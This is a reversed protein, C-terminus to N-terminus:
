EFRVPVFGTPKLWVWNRSFGARTRNDAEPQLRLCSRLSARETGGGVSMRYSIWMSRRIYRSLLAVVGIAGSTSSAINGYKFSLNPLADLM